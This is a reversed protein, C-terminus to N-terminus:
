MSMEDRVQFIRIPHPPHHAPPSTTTTICWYRLSIQCTTLSRFFRGCKFAISFNSVNIEVSANQPINRYSKDQLYKHNDSLIFKLRILSNAFLAWFEGQHGHILTFSLVRRGSPIYLIFVKASLIRETVDIQQLEMYLYELLYGLPMSARPCINWLCKGDYRIYNKVQRYKVTNSSSVHAMTM